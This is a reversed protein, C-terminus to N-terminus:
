CGFCTSCYVSMIFCTDDLQDVKISIDLHHVTWYAGECFQSFHSISEERGDTRGDAHFLEVGVPRIKMFFFFDTSFIWTKNVRVKCSAWYASAITDRETWRLSLFKEASHHLSILVCTRHEIANKTKIYFRATHSIINFFITSGSLGCVVMPCMRVAYRTGLAVSVCQSYTGNISKARCDM